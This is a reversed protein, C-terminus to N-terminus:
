EISQNQMLRKLVYKWSQSSDKFISIDAIIAFDGKRLVKKETLVIINHKRIFIELMKFRQHVGISKNWFSVKDQVHLFGVLKGIHVRVSFHVHHFLRPFQKVLVSISFQCRILESPHRVLLNQCITLNLGHKPLTILIPISVQVKLLEPLHNEFVPKAMKIMSFGFIQPVVTIDTEPYWSCNSSKALRYRCTGFM